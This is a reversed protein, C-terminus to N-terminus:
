KKNLDLAQLDKFKSDKRKYKSKQNALKAGSINNITTTEDVQKSNLITSSSYNVLDPSKVNLNGLFLYRLKDTFDLTGTKYRIKAERKIQEDTKRLRRSRCVLLWILAAYVILACVFSIFALFKFWNQNVSTFILREELNELNIEKLM